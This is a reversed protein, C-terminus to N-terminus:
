LNKFQEQLSVITEINQDIQSRLMISMNNRSVYITSNNVVGTVVPVEVSENWNDLKSLQNDLYGNKTKLKDINELISTAKEFQEANM